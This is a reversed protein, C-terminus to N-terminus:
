CDVILSESKGLLFDVTGLYIEEHRNSGGNPNDRYNEDWFFEGGSPGEGNRGKTSTSLGCFGSSEVFYNGFFKYFCVADGASVGVQNVTDPDELAGENGSQHGYRDIYGAVMLNDENFAITALIPQPFITEGNAGRVFKVTKSWPRWNALISSASVGSGPRDAKGRKYDIDYSVVSSFSDSQHDYSIIYGHLDSSSQTTEASCVM